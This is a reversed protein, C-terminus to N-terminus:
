STFVVQLRLFLAGFTCAYFDVVRFVLVFILSAYIFAEWGIRLAMSAWIFSLFFSVSSLFFM